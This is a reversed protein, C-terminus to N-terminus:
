GKQHLHQLLLLRDGQAGGVQLLVEEKSQGRLHFGKALVGQLPLKGQAMLRSEKGQFGLLCMKGKGRIHSGKSLVEQQPLKGQAM